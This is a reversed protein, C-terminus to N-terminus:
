RPLLNHLGGKAWSLPGHAQDHKQKNAKRAYSWDRARTAIAEDKQSRKEALALTRRQQPTIHQLGMEDRRSLQRGKQKVSLEPSTSPDHDARLILDETTRTARGRKQASARSGAAKRPLVQLEKGIRSDQRAAGNLANGEVESEWFGVMEPERDLNLMCHGSDRMHNQIAVTSSRTTGCYLCEHWMYIQTSLYGLFSELDLLMGQNPIYLGHATFMHEANDKLGNVEDFNQQCFLCQRASAVDQDIAEVTEEESELEATEPM